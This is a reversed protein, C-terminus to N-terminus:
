ARGIQLAPTSAIRGALLRRLWFAFAGARLDTLDMTLALPVALLRRGHRWQCYHSIVSCSQSERGLKVLCSAARHPKKVIQLENLRETWEVQLGIVQHLLPCCVCKAVDCAGHRRASQHDPMHRAVSTHM